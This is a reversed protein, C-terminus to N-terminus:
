RIIRIVTGPQHHLSLTGFHSNHVGDEALPGVSRSKKSLLLQRRCRTRKAGNISVGIISGISARGADTQHLRRSCISSSNILSHGPPLPKSLGNTMLTHLTNEITEHALNRATWVVNIPRLTSCKICIRLNISYNLVDNTVILKLHMINAFSSTLALFSM